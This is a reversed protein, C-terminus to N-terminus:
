IEDPCSIWMIPMYKKVAMSSYKTLMLLRWQCIENKDKEYFPTHVGPDNKIVHETLILDPPLCIVFVILNLVTSNM